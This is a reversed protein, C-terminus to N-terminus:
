PETGPFGHVEGGRNSAGRLLYKELLSMIREVGHGDAWILNDSFRKEFLPTQPNEVDITVSVQIPKM